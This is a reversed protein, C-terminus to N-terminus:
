SEVFQFIFDVLQYEPFNLFVCFVDFESLCCAKDYL